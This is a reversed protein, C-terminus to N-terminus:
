RSNQAAQAVEPNYPGDLLQESFDADTLGVNLRLDIYNYEENVPPEDGERDPWGSVVFRVPVQLEDDLYLSTIHSELGNGPQPHVIRIQSCPRNNVVENRIYSVQTNAATPDRDIDTKAQQAVQDLIKDLGIDTIPKRSESLSQPGFPDVKLKIHKMLSGGKRVLVQGDNQNAVYLVRRDKITKPAVFQMFVSLPQASGDEYSQECRVKMHAFQHAQLKGNIRERKVLRCAYDRVNARIYASLSTAYRVTEALPHEAQQNNTPTSQEAIATTNSQSLLGILSLAIWSRACRLVM